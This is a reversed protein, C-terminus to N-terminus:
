LEDRIEQQRGCIVPLNGNRCRIEDIFAKELAIDRLTINYRIEYMSGLNTTKVREQTVRSTYKAFLDDFIETYDLNEPITVTLQKDTRSKEGFSSHSLIYFALCVIITMAFGYGIYGTGTALGAAMAFFIFSIEKSGGPVSRFRILSFAGVVAVGTGLNGNVMMIIIQVLSPLLVLSIIFNKTYTGSRMYTFAIMLGLVLATLICIIANAATLNGTTTNLINTFM